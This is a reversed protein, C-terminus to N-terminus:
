TTESRDLLAMNEVVRDFVTDAYINLTTTANAHGMLYQVSKVDMGAAICRTCYTHRLVHPTCREIPVSAQNQYRAMFTHMLDAYQSHTRPKGSATVTLFNGVGDIIHNKPNQKRETVMRELSNRVASTMPIDRNSRRSKTRSITVKGKLRVLQKNVHILNYKFDIDKITLAAFESIRLGTGLLVVVMDYYRSGVTDERLFALLAQEQEVSLARVPPTENRLIDSLPFNCPDRMIANDDVALRFAMKLISFIAAITGHAYNDDHLGILYAKIDSVKIRNIPTEHLHSKSITVRYQEMTKRTSDTWNRKLWFLRDLLERLPACGDQYSVGLGLHRNIEEAERRLAHLDLNYICRRKGDIDKYRYQYRGDKRQSEGDKLIRGKNDRRKESLIM